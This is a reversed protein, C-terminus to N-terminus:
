KVPAKGTTPRGDYDFDSGYLANCTELVDAYKGEPFSWIHLRNRWRGGLDHAKVLFRKNYPARVQIRTMVRRVEVGESRMPQM